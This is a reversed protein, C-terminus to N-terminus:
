SQYKAESVCGVCFIPRGLFFDAVVNDDDDAVSIRPYGGDNLRSNQSGYFDAFLM